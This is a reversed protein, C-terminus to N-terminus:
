DEVPAEEAPAAPAEMAKVSLSIKKGEENFHYEQTVQRQIKVTEQEMDFDSFKLGYIEGKRLGCFLALM